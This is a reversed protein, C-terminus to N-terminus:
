FVFPKFVIPLGCQPQLTLMDAPVHRYDEGVTFLFRQLIIALVMKAEIMAFNQGVCARPGTSFALLANPHMGAKAVGNEFRLPKFENADEGWLEKQRHFIPFPITLETGKPISINGLNMDQSAERVIALVPGYLRLTEFLVMTMFKFKTLNDATPIETGCETLVEQRLKDQWDPNTSLLFMAWTLLQSTTEQGAFYFTKCEDIIENSDLKMGVKKQTSEMMIGLLDNGNGSNKSKLRSNIINTVTNKVKRDLMWRKINKKTPIYKFGPIQVNFITALIIKQLKKQALFVEKGQVFSSGFAAHSIIDATLEQFENNVEIWNHEEDAETVKNHWTDLISATCQAMEKTMLKLKDMTFAPSIVRRHRAWESGETIVLGKRGLLGLIHGNPKPKGYFGFKNSLIQKAQEANTICVRPTSGSWYVFTGGFQNIWKYYQPLVKPVIDHSSIDVQINLAEKKMRKIEDLNGSWFKPKPGKIGQKQLKKAISYPVWTISVVFNWLIPVSIVIISGLLLGLIDM